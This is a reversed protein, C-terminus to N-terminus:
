LNAGDSSSIGDARKIIRAPVGVATAGAPVDQLVVANAGIKAGDGVKVPGLVKAGAGVLVGKGIVPAGPRNGAVGLTVHQFLVSGGGIAAHESVVVGCGNHQFLVDDAIAAHSGIHCSFLFQNLHRFLAALILGPAGYRVCAHSLRHIMLCENM